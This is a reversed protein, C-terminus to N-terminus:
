CCCCCYYYGSPLYPTTVANPGNNYFQPHVWTLYQLMGKYAELPGQAAQVVCYALLLMVAVNRAVEPAATVLMGSSVLSKIVPILSTAAAVAQGELDIDLGDLGYESMFSALGAEVVEASLGTVLYYGYYM